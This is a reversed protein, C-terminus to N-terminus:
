REVLRKAEDIWRATIKSSIKMRSALGEPSTKALDDVSSIGLNKLQEARKAGIGKVSTLELAVPKAEPVMIPAAPIVKESPVVPPAPPTPQTLPGAVIKPRQSYGWGAFVLALIILITTVAIGTSTDIPYIAFGGALVICILAVTYLAYDSRMDNEEEM